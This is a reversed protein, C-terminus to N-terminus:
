CSYFCDILYHLFALLDKVISSAGQLLLHHGPLSDRRHVGRHGNPTKTSKMDDGTTIVGSRVFERAYHTHLYIGIEGRLTCKGGGPPTNLGNVVLMM